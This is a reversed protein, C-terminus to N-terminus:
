FVISLGNGAPMVSTRPQAEAAQPDDGTIFLVLATVLGALGVCGATIALAETVTVSQMAQNLQAYTAQTRLAAANYITVDRRLDDARTLTLGLLASGAGTAAAGLSLATWAIARTTRAHAARARRVEPLPELDVALETLHAARVEITRSIKKYGDKEVTITHVGGRADFPLLPSLGVAAGDLRITAADLNTTLRISGALQELLDRVLLTTADRATSDLAGFSTEEHIDRDVYPHGVRKLELDLRHATTTTQLTANVLYDARDKATIKFAGLADLTASIVAALPDPVDGTIAIRWKGDPPLAPAPANLVALAPELPVPVLLPPLAAQHPARSPPPPMHPPRAEANPARPGTGPVTPSTGPVTPSTGPVTSGTGPVTPGTGPVTPSTGPVTPGTGPVTPSTGPRAPASAPGKARAKAEANPQVEARTLTAFVQAAGACSKKLEAASAYGAGKLSEVPVWERGNPRFTVATGAPWESKKGFGFSDSAVVLRLNMTCRAAEATTASSIVSLVACAVWRVGRITGTL